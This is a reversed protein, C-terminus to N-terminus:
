AFHAALAEVLAPVTYVAPEVVVDLGYDRATRSTVPGITAVAVGSLDIGHALRMFGRVTSSSTFTVADVEGGALRELIEPDGSGQVTRYVPVVDVTAGRAGLERPLVERAEAARPLLVRTGAEAGAAILAAALGEGVHEEPVLDAPVGRGTLVAATAPGVAAIKASGLALAPTGLSDMRALFRRAANASTFVVWDYSGLSGIAEDVADFSEPDVIEICPFALVEAGAAELLAALEAAQALARTVIVRKGALPRAIGAEVTM